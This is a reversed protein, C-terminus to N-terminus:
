LAVLALQVVGKTGIGGLRLPIILLLLAPSVTGKPALTACRRAACVVRSRGGRWVPATHATRLVLTSVWQLDALRQTAGRVRDAFLQNGCYTRAPHAYLRTADLGTRYVDGGPGAENSVGDHQFQQAGGAPLQHRWS